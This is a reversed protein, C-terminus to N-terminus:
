RATAADSHCYTTACSGFTQSGAQSPLFNAGSGSYTGSAADAPPVPAAAPPAPPPQPNFGQAPGGM